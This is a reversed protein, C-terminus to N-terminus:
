YGIYSQTAVGGCMYSEYDEDYEDDDHQEPEAAQKESPLTRSHVFYRLADVIHTIYHPETACDNPNKDDAQITMLNDILDKCNETIQLMPKGDDATKLYEKLMMWGQVRSNNAKFLPVGNEAFIEAM